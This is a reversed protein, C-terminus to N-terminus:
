KTEGQPMKNVGKNFFLPNFPKPKYAITNAKIIEKRKYGLNRLEFEISDFSDIIEKLDVENILNELVNFIRSTNDNDSASCKEIIESMERLNNSLETLLNQSDDLCQNLQNINNNM